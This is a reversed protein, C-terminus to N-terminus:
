INNCYFIQQLNQFVLFFVLFKEMEEAESELDFAIDDLSDELEFLTRISTGDQSTYNVTAPTTPIATQAM